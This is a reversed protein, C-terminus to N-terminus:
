FPREGAASAEGLDALHALLRDATLEDLRGADAARRVEAAAEEIELARGLRGLEPEVGAALRDDLRRVGLDIADQRDRLETLQRQTMEVAAQLEGFRRKMWGLVALGALALVVLAALAALPAILADSM